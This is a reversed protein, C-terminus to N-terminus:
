AEDAPVGPAAPTMMPAIPLAPAITVTEGETGDPLIEAFVIADGVAPRAEVVAGQVDSAVLLAGDDTAQVTLARAEAAFDSLRRAETVASRAATTGSLIRM